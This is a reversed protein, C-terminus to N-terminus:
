KDPVNIPIYFTSIARSVSSEPRMSLSCLKERLDLLGVCAARFDLVPGYLDHMGQNQQAMALLGNAIGAGELIRLGVCKKSHRWYSSVFLQGM